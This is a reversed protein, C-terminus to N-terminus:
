LLLHFILLSMKASVSNQNFYVSARSSFLRLCLFSWTQVVNLDGFIRQKEKWSPALIFHSCQMNYVVFVNNWIIYISNYQIQVAELWTQSASSFNIYSNLNYEILIKFLPYCPTICFAFNHVQLFYGEFILVIQLTYYMLFTNLLPGNRKGKFSGRCFVEVAMETWTRRLFLTTISIGQGM